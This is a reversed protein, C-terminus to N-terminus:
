EGINRTDFDIYPVYTQWAAVDDASLKMAADVWTKVLSQSFSVVQGENVAPWGAQESAKTEIAVIRATGINKKTDIGYTQVAKRVLQTYSDGAQATYSYTKEKPTSAKQEAAYTESTTGVLTVACAAVIGFVITGGFKRIFKM